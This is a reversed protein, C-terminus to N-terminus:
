GSWVTRHPTCDVELRGHLETASCERPLPSTAREIRAMSSLPLASGQYPLPRANLGRRPCWSELMSSSPAPFHGLAFKLPRLRVHVHPRNTVHVVPLRRQRRRHRHDQRLLEAALRLGVLLDVRRRLLLRAPDRDVRRVHLVLRRLAVVRVHVARPVRVVHLVHDRPRRLHVPRDQHHRRGVARHRLRALVDQQRALHPHGVDHHEHVLRVHDIVLLQQLQHLHLHALQERLILKGPVVGRDHDARRQLRHFAVLALM